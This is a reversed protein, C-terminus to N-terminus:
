GEIRKDIFIDRPLNKTEVNRNLTRINGGLMPQRELVTVQHAQALYHATAMGAGGGGIVVVHM